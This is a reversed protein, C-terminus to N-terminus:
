PAHIRILFVYVDYITHTYVAAALGRVLFLVGFFFGCVTRFIMPAAEMPPQPPIHHAAAFLVSSVIVGLFIPVRAETERDAPSMLRAFFWILATCLVLRFLLEEYVGAGCSHVIAELTHYLRPDWGAPVPSGWGSAAEKTALTPLYGMAINTFVIAFVMMFIAWVVCEVILGVLYGVEIPGHRSSKAYAVILTLALLGNFVYHLPGIQALLIKVVIGAGNELEPRLLWIGLEYILLLPLVFLLSLSLTRTRQWYGRPLADSKTPKGM